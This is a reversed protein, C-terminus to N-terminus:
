LVKDNNRGDRLDEKLQWFKPREDDLTSEIAYIVVSYKGVENVEQYKLHRPKRRM